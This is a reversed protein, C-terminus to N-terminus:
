KDTHIVLYVSHIGKEKTVKLIHAHPYLIHLRQTVNEIGIGTTKDKTGTNGFTNQVEFVVENSSSTLKINIWAGDEELNGHKFANEVFNILLIPEIQLHPNALNIDLLIKHEYRKKLGQLQIYNRLYDAEKQVAIKEAQSDELMYRMIDSLKVIMPAANDSKQYALSYINNLANFLFHPSVQSKLWKLETETNSRKLEAELKQKRLVEEFLFSFNILFTFLIFYPIRGYLHPSTYLWDPHAPRLFLDELVCIIFCTILVAILWYFFYRWYKRKLFYKPMLVFYNFYVPLMQLVLVICTYIFVKYVPSAVKILQLFNKYYSFSLWFFIAWFLGHIGWKYLGQRNLKQIM